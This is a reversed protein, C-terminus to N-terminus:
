YWNYAAGLSQVQPNIGYSIDLLTPDADPNRFQRRDKWIASGDGFLKNIGAVDPEQGAVMMEEQGRKGGGISHNYDLGEESSVWWYLADTMLLHRSGPTKGGFDQPRTATGMPWLDSRGFYSYRLRM